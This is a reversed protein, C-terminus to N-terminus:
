DSAPRIQQGTLWVVPGLAEAATWTSADPHSLDARGQASLFRRLAPAVSAGSANPSGVVVFRVRGSADLYLLADEHDVDYNLPRGTLWDTGPPNEEAVRQYWVGLYRWIRAIVAPSGTLLMLNAPAGILARYARLRAPTDREPDVTLEAFRVRHGLRAATVARDMVLLNGTTLPCTEQCLTLFDALVVVQGRWAGLSTPRGADTLLPLDAIGAPVPRDVVTGLYASPPGPVAANGACGAVVASIALGGALRAPWGRMALSATV